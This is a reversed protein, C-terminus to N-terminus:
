PLNWRSPHRDDPDSREHKLKQQQKVLALLITLCAVVTLASLAMTTKNIKLLGLIVLAIALYRGVYIAFILAVARWGSQFPVTRRVSLKLLYINIAGLVAGILIGGGVEWAQNM